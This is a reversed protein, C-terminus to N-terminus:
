LQCDSLLAKPIRREEVECDVALKAIPIKHRDFYFLRDASGADTRSRDEHLLLGAPWHLEFKRLRDARAQELPELPL